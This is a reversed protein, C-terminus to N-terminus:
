KPLLSCSNRAQMSGAASASRSLTTLGHLRRRVRGRRQAGADVREEGEQVGVALGPPHEVVLRQGAAALDRLADGLVARPHLREDGGRQLLARSLRATSGSDTAIKPAASASPRQHSRVPAIGASRM